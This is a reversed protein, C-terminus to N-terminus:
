DIIEELGAWCRYDMRKLGGFDDMRWRGKMGNWNALIAGSM